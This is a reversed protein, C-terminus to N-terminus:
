SSEPHPSGELDLGASYLYHSPGVPRSYNLLHQISSHSSSRAFSSSHSSFRTALSTVLPLSIQSHLQTSLNPHSKVALDQSGILTISTLISRRQFSPAPSAPSERSSEGVLAMTRSSDWKRFDPPGAPSQARNAKTPPWRANISALASAACDSGCSSSSSTDVVDLFPTAPPPLALLPRPKLPPPPPPPPPLLLGALSSALAAAYVAHLAPCSAAALLPPPPAHWCPPPPPCYALVARPAVPRPPQPRRMIGDITFPAPSPPAPAPVAGATSALGAELAEKERRPLKFRKRRRLFSGNEFMDLAAPHLAWYAGKGPRDPRRPIKIFCDNFSLNHRLSNQWRQTNRRYYPFRDTIFRYIDSLPLMKEPSSWIAMATLSIYSYPPKQDGYSERSPRPMTWSVRTLLATISGTRGNIVRPAVLRDSAEHRYHSARPLRRIHVSTKQPTRLPRALPWPPRALPCPPRRVPTQVRRRAPRGGKHAAGGRPPIAAGNAPRPPAEREGRGRVRGGTPPVDGCAAM